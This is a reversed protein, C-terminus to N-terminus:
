SGTLVLLYSSAECSSDGTNSSGAPEATKENGQSSQHAQLPTLFLVEILRSVHRATNVRKDVDQQLIVARVAASELLTEPLGALRGCEVGFSGALGPRLQYQFRLMRGALATHTCEFAMHGITIQNPFQKALTLAVHPYHTIFLLKCGVDTALHELVASAIAMGDYTSTGRGLEDLIILSNKTACKIIESTETMEVMFTSRGKMLEDNAGMRALLADHLGLKAAEAPVYSGIQAMIVILAIMRVFTSKGGMNPGTIVKCTPDDGGLTLSNAVCPQDRYTEVLPHRGEIIELTSSEVFEPRNYGIEMSVHALSVLCDAIALQNVFNRLTPYDDAISKQFATFADTAEAQLLERHQELQFLLEQTNPSRYRAFKKTGSILPWDSPVKATKEVEVVYEEANFGSMDKWKLSPRRLEKRIAKLENELSLLVSMIAANRDALQPYRDEGRWLDGMKGRSAAQFDFDDTHKEILGQISPLTAVIKNLMTSRLGPGNDTFPKYVNAIKRFTSLIRGLEQPTCKTHQIKALGQALDVYEYAKSSFRKLQDRLTDILRGNDTPERIEDIAVLREQLANRDVLPRGIWEKLLRSGFKTETRDLLGFLSNKKLFTTQNQFVDLNALTSANLLMHTRNAFQKFTNVRLLIHGLNFQQLYHHIHALAVVVQRPLDLVFGIPAGVDADVGMPANCVGRCAASMSDFASTYDFVKDIREVRVQSQRSYTNVLKLQDETIKSLKGVAPLLMEWPKLYALRTELETRISTDDFQDYTVDGTSPTVSILGITVRGDNSGSSKEVLCLLSPPSGQHMDDTNDASDLDDIYTAATWLHLLKRDFLTNRSESAKKLAATETQGVVGVKHGLSLLKKVHRALSGVPFSSTLLNRYKFCVHGLAKAAVRADDGYLKYKYGVEFLLLVGRNSSLFSIVQQELPTYKNGSPGIQGTSVSSPPQSYLSRALEDGNVQFGDEDESPSGDFADLDHPPESDVGSTQTLPLRTSGKRPASSKSAQSTKSAQKPIASIVAIARAKTKISSDTILQSKPAAPEEDSEFFSSKTALKSSSQSSKNKAVGPQFKHAGTGSTIDAKQRKRPPEDDSDLTLDIVARKTEHSGTSKKPREPSSGWFGTLKAQKSAM